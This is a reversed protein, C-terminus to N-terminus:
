QKYRYLHVEGFGAEIAESTINVKRIEVSYNKIMATDTTAPKNKIGLANNYGDLLSNESTFALQSHSYYTQGDFNGKWKSICSLTQVGCLEITTPIGPELKAIPFPSEYKEYLFECGDANFIAKAKDAAVAEKLIQMGGSPIIQMALPLHDASAGNVLSMDVTRRLRQLRHDLCIEVGIEYNPQEPIPCFRANTSHPSGDQKDGKLISYAPYNGIWETIMGGHSLQNDSTIVGMTLDVTSEYQKEYTFTKIESENFCTPPIEYCIGRNRVACLPEARYGKMLELLANDAANAFFRDCNQPNPIQRRWMVPQECNCMVSNDAKKPMFKNLETLRENVVASNLLANYNEVNSTLISGILVRIHFNKFRFAAFLKRRAENQIYAFPSLGNIRINPYPGEKCRFYFEPVVFCLNNNLTETARKAATILVDIRYNIDDKFADVDFTKNLGTWKGTVWPYDSNIFPKLESPGTYLSWAAFDWNSNPDANQCEPCKVNEQNENM